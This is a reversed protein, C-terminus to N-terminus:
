KSLENVMNRKKQYFKDMIGSVQFRVIYLPFHHEINTRQIQYPNCDPYVPSCNTMYSYTYHQQILKMAEKTYTNLEGGVWCFSNIQFNLKEQMIEKARVIEEILCESTDNCNMRHHTMTHCGIGFGEEKIKKIDNLNMFDHAESLINRAFIFFIAKVDYKKLIPIAVDLNDKYGDDFTLLLGPKNQFVKQKNLFLHFEEENIIEFNEKFYLIQKEFNDKSKIPTDHYNIVRVYNKDKQHIFIWRNIGFLDCLRAIFNKIKIIM